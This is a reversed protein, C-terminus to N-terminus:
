AQYIGAADYGGAQWQSFSKQVNDIFFMGQIYTNRDILTSVANNGPYLYINTKETTQPNQVIAFSNDLVELHSWSVANIGSSMGQFVNESIVGQRFDTDTQGNGFKIWSNFTNGIFNVNAVEAGHVITPKNITCASVMYDRVKNASESYLHMAYYGGIESFVCDTIERLGGNHNHTYLGYSTTNHVNVRRLEGVGSGFWGIGIFGGSVDVEILKTGPRSIYVPYKSADPQYVNIKHWETYDGALTLGGVINVTENKYARFVVPANEAGKVNVVWNGTYTGGRLIIEDGPIVRPNSIVSAFRIPNTIVGTM